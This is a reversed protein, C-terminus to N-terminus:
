WELDGSFVIKEYLSENLRHIFYFERVIVQDYNESEEEGGWCLDTGFGRNGPGPFGSTLTLLPTRVM